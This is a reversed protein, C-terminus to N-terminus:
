VLSLRKSNRSKTVIRGATVNEKSGNRRADSRAHTPREELRLRANTLREFGRV